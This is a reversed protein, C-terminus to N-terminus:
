KEWKINVWLYSIVASFIITLLLSGVLFQLKYADLIDFFEFVGYILLPLLMINQPITKKNISKCETCKLKKGIPVEKQIM